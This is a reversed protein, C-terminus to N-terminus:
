FDKDAVQESTRPGKRELINGRAVVVSPEEYSITVKGHVTNIGHGALLVNSFIRIYVVIKSILDMCYVHAGYYM